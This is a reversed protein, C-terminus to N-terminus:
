GLPGTIKGTGVMAASRVEREVDQLLGVKGAGGPIGDQGAPQLHPGAAHADSRALQEPRRQGPAGWGGRRRVYGRRDRPPEAPMGNWFAGNVVLWYGVWMHDTLSCYKQVQYFKQTEIVGLPNEQGDVVPDAALHLTGRFEHNGALRRPEPLDVALDPQTAGADQLREPRRAFQDAQYQLHDRPVGQGLDPADARLGTKAIDARVMDGVAGDLAAWATQPTKFAFGVNDIAASPALTALINDGIAWRRCPAPACTPWCIPTTALSTTRSCRVNVEGKTAEKIKDAAAQMGIVIPHDRALDIGLRMDYVPAAAVRRTALAGTAAAAGALFQNRTLLAKM